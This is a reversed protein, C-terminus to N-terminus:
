NRRISATTVPDSPEPRDLGYVDERFHVTGDPTVFGTMYVWAVPVPQPLAVDKREASAMAAQVQDKSWGRPALIWAVLDAVGSVRVCGHSLFRFDRGFFRKAPTDHMYVSHRNPMAIRVLGLSNGTGSEQRLTYNVAGAGSWDIAAPDIERGSAGYIRIKAKALYGPDKRMKPIIENRIISVPVTWTPHFNIAGVRAEVTPSPHEPDGVVAVYRRAVAGNEVAEVAASPLNVVIHRAGFGFTSQAIRQASYALQRVRDEVPVNLAKQTAPGVLGTEPLGHRFQFRRVAAVLAPDYTEGEGIADRHDGEIALRQRLLPVLPSSQGPKLAPMEPLVPWGGRAAIASYAAAAHTLMTATDPHFSPQPDQSIKAEPPPPAPLKAKAAAARPSAAPAGAGPAMPPAVAPPSSPSPAPVTPAAAPLDTIPAAVVSSAKAPMEPAAMVPLGHLLLAGAM